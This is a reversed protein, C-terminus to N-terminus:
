KLNGTQEERTDSSSEGGRRKRRRATCLDYLSTWPQTLGCGPQLLSKVCGLVIKIIMGTFTQGLTAATSRSGGRRLTSLPPLPRSPSTAEMTSTPLAGASTVIARPMSSRTETVVALSKTKYSINEVICPMYINIFLYHWRPDLLPATM